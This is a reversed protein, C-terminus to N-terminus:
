IALPKTKLWLFLPVKCWRAVHGPNDASDPVPERLSIVAFGAGELDAMYGELPQSWGAFHMQLGNRVESGQFRERGLYSKEVVFPANPEPGVFRGRDTFPHVISVALTGSPRLVRKVEKLAAPVDDIDMLVNYAVVLDFSCDAFPLDAATAIKYADASGIQKAASIFQEVPDVATVRYGCEKLLRSVRGEGCGVDLADGAGQGIFALLAARYAWFEEHNPARAWATWQAAIRSWHGVETGKASM